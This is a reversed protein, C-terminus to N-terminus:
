NTISLPPKLKVQRARTSESINHTGLIVHSPGLQAVQAGSASFIKIGLDHIECYRIANKITM